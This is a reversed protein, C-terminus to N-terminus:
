INQLETTNLKCINKTTTKIGGGNEITPPMYYWRQGYTRGDRETRGTRLVKPKRKIDKSLIPTNSQFKVYLYIIM